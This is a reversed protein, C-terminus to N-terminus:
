AAARAIAAFSGPDLSAGGVLAGDIDERGLLGAANDPKVSGGYLIRLAAAADADFRDRVADRICVHMAEADGPTATLGTGIAWVPEYAVVTASLSAKGFDAFATDLQERVVAEARGAERQDRKEGVCLVTILGGDLAARVKRAVVENSEGLVHRRESHGVLVWSAGVDHIMSASIEGTYAGEKEWFLDQAGVAVRTGEFGRAVPPVAFFQPFIAIDCAPLSDMEGRFADVFAEADALTKTM